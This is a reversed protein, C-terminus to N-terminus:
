VWVDFRVVLRTGFFMLTPLFSAEAREVVGPFSILSAPFFQVRGHLEDFGLRRGDFSHLQFEIEPFRCSLTESKGEENIALSNLKALKQSNAQYLYAILLAFM